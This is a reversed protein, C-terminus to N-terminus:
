LYQKLNKFWGNVEGRPTENGISSKIIIWTASLCCGNKKRSLFSISKLILKCGLKNYDFMWFVFHFMEYM